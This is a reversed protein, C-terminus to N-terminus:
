HANAPRGASLKFANALTSRNCIGWRSAVDLMHARGGTESMERLEDEIRKVRETRILEAPTM